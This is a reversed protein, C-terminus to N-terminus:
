PHSDLFELPTTDSVCTGSVTLVDALTIQGLLRFLILRQIEGFAAVDPLFNHLTDARAALHMALEGSKFKVISQRLEALELFVATEEGLDGAHGLDTRSLNSESVDPAFGSRWSGWDLQTLRGRRNHFQREFVAILPRM